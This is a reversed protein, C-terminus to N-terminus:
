GRQWRLTINPLIVKGSSGGEAVLLRGPDRLKPRWRREVEMMTMEYITEERIALFYLASVLVPQERIDPRNTFTKSSGQSYYRM